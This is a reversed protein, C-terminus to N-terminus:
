FLLPIIGFDNYYEYTYSEMDDCTCDTCGTYYEFWLKESDCSLKASFLEEGIASPICEDVVFSFSAFDDDDECTEYM